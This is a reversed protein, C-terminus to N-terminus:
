LFYTSIPVFSCQSSSGSYERQLFAIMTFVLSPSVTPWTGSKSAWASAGSILPPFMTDISAITVPSGLLAGSPVHTIPPM